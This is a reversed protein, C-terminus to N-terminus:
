LDKELDFSLGGSALGVAVASTVLLLASGGAITYWRRYWPTPQTGPDPGRRPIATRHIDGAVERYPRLDVSVRSTAGFDVDVFRVFDRFEPHTVRLAHSGVAVRLPRAPSRAVLRGDVFISAGRVNTELVVDGIYREPALLRTAAALAEADAAQPGGLELVSSRVERRGRVDVLKLYVVQAAGLGGVEGYIALDAAVLQGLDALCAVDGDCARLEPRRARKVADLMAAHGVISVSGVATLARTVLRQAARVESSSSEAGLTALPAVVARPLPQAAAPAAVALLLAVLLARM